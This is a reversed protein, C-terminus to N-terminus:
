PPKNRDTNHKQLALKRETIAQIGGHNGPLATQPRTGRLSWHNGPAEKGIPATFFKGAQRFHKRRVVSATRISRTEELSGTPQPTM